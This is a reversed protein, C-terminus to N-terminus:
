TGDLFCDTTRYGLCSHVYYITINSDATASNNGVKFDGADAAESYALPDDNNTDIDIQSMGTTFVAIEHDPNGTTQGRYRVIYEVGTTLYNGTTAVQETASQAYRYGKIDNSTDLAVFAYDSASGFVRFIQANDVWTTVKFRAFITYRTSDFGDGDLSYFDQGNSGAGDKVDDFVGTGGILEQDGSAFPTVTASSSWYTCGCPNYGEEGVTTTNLEWALLKIGTCEYCGVTNGCIFMTSMRAWGQYGLAMIFVFLIFAVINRKM